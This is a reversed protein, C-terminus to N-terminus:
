WDVKAVANSEVEKQAPTHEWNTGRGTTEFGTPGKDYNERKAKHVQVARRDNFSKILHM